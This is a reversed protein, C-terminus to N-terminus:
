KRRKRSRRRESARRRKELREEASMQPGEEVDVGGFADGLDPPAMGGFMDMGGSRKMQKKMKRLKKMSGFLGSAQGLNRMMGRASNFRKYLARVEDVKHGSGRAIRRMRSENVVDPTNRESRTMSQIMSRVKVLEREDLADEPIQSKLDSFGPMKDLLDTLSGMKKLTDMQSLFDDFSFDGGLMKRADKEATEQDIHEEFDQVLGVVDGMGLVRSALGEPRFAELKDLSEGMGLFLIPKGTVQKISLAAGGRADGDLKTLIFGTFNLRRDFEAATRVADQGIMADCVFVINRPRVKAVIQVLEEMLPSDLALRGATDLIVTDRGESRAQAVGMACLDVPNMGRISFVPIDLQGGLTSLQEVAAPRYVDAAVLMPKKGQKLLRSALKGATTTKGSGQLGVLMIVSPDGDLDLGPSDEGMLAVLEDHCIKVFHDGPTVRQGDAGRGSKLAVVEGMARDSVKDVFARVVGLEVDAELLSTRVAAMAERLNEETLQAKGAVKLRAQRFGQTLTDLM